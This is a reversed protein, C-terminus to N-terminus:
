ADADAPANIPDGEVGDQTLLTVRREDTAPSESPDPETPEVETLEASAAPEATAEDGPPQADPTAPEDRVLDDAAAVPRNSPISANFLGPLTGSWAERLEDLSVSFQGRVELARSRGDVVGLPTFPLGHDACLATFAREHGRPVSVLARAASEAFLMVFPNAEEPLVVSVGIDHRLCAEVLAQALGGDSLDHASSLHGHD